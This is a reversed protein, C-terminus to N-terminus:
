INKLQVPLTYLTRAKLKRSDIKKNQLKRKVFIKFERNTSSVSIVIMENKDNVTFLVEAKSTEDIAFPAQSGLLATIESNLNRSEKIPDNVETANSSITAFCIAFIAIISKLNKM